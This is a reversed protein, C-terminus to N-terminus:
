RTVPAMDDIQFLTIISELLAPHIGMKRALNWRELGRKHPTGLIIDRWDGVFELLEAKALKTEHKHWLAHMEPDLCILNDISDNLKDHDRHHVHHRKPIPGYHKEYNVRALRERKGNVNVYRRGNEIWGEGEGAAISAKIPPGLLPDGYKKYRLLHAKCYHTKNSRTIKRGCDPVVCVTPVPTRPTRAAERCPKCPHIVCGAQAGTERIAYESRERAIGCSTCVPHTYRTRTRPETKPPKLDAATPKERQFLRSRLYRSLTSESVGLSAAVGARTSRPQNLMQAATIVQEPTM